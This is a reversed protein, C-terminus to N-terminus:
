PTRARIRRLLETADRTRGTRTDTLYYRWPTVTADIMWTLPRHVVRYRRLTALRM